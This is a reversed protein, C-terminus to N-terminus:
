PLKPADVGHMPAGPSAQQSVLQGAARTGERLATHTCRAGVPAAARAAHCAGCGCGGGSGLHSSGVEKDKAYAYTRTKNEKSTYNWLHAGKLIKGGPRSRNGRKIEHPCEGIGEVRGMKLENIKTVNQMDGNGIWNAKDSTM